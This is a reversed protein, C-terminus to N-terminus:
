VLYGGQLLRLSLPGRLFLNGKEWGPMLGDEGSRFAFFERFLKSNRRKQAKLDFL